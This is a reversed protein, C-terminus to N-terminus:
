ARRPSGSTVSSRPVPENRDALAVKRLMGNVGLVRDQVWAVTGPALQNLAMVWRIPGPNVSLEISDHRLARLVSRAVQEPKVTGLLPSVQAGHKRMVVSFMGEDTVFGPCVVSVSVGTGRLENRLCHSFTVLGAKSTSYSVSYPASSKGALSAINVIHGTKRALLKPLLKHTLEVPSLLNIRLMEETQAGSEDAFMRIAHIGANNILIDIAGLQAEAREIVSHLRALDALDAVVPVARVGLQSLEAALQTLSDTGRAVLALNVGERALARAIHAGIGRSAGTVIATRGKLQRM